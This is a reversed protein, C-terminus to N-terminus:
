SSRLSAGSEADFLHAQGMQVHFVHAAGRQKDALGNLQDAPVRATLPLAGLDFHVYVESGMHEVFRLTGPLEVTDHRAAATIHEPRLGLKVARPRGALSVFRGAPLPLVQGGIAVGSGNALEAEH